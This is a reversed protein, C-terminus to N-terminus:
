RRQTLGNWTDVLSEQAVSKVDFRVMRFVAEMISGIGFVSIVTGLGVKAGLLWGILLVTGELAGRVLGVPVKPLYKCLAVMLSDRPGAGLGANMYFYTGFCILVQGILLLVLGWWFNMQLPIFALREMADMFTGVLLADLVTGVGCKEKLLLDILIIIIGSWIVIQGFSIGSVLSIGMSFATWPSLGINAQITMYSGFACLFLGFVVRATRSVYQM